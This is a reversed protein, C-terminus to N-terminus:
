NSLIGTPAADARDALDYLVDLSTSDTLFHTSGDCLGVNVGGLHNSHLPRNVGTNGASGNAEIISLTNIPHKISTLNFRRVDANGDANCGMQFGHNADSRCDWQQGNEDFMWASQEGIIMTNSTGDTIEAISISKWRDESVNEGVLVGNTSISTNYRSSFTAAHPPFDAPDEPAAGSIGTYCAIPNNNEDQGFSGHPYNARSGYHFVEKPLDSSPCYLFPLEVGEVAAWNTRSWGGLNPDYLNRLNAQEIFPLLSVWFSSGYSGGSYFNGEPFHQQASEYNIAALCCQRVSNACATRRAAERVQQVAPLLMGILIGIIAIVVLLEVLTFASTDRCKKM